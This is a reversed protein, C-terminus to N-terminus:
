NGNLKKSEEIILKLISDEIGDEKVTKEFKKREELFKNEKSKLDSIYNKYDSESLDREPIFKQIKIQKEEYNNVKLNGNFDVYVNAFSSFLDNSNDEYESEGYEIGDTIEDFMSMRFFLCMVLAMAIDTNSEGYKMLDIIVGEFSYKHIEQGVEQKLIKTAWKKENPGMKQGDKNKHNGGVGEIEPREKVYSGAGVDYFYRM